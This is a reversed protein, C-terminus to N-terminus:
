DGAVIVSTLRGRTDVSCSAPYAGSSTVVNHFLSFARTGAPNQVASLGAWPWTIIGVVTGHSGSKCLDYIFLYFYSFFDISLYYLFCILLYSFIRPFNLLYTVFRSKFSVLPSLSM